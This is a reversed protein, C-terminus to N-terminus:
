NGIYHAYSRVRELALRMRSREAWDEADEDDDDCTCNGDEDRECDCEDEDGDGDNNPDSLLSRYQKPVSRLSVTSDPFAAFSTCSIEYLTVALLTRTVNGAGDDEWQDKNVAFGFSVGTLDQRSISDLTDTAVTNSNSLKASFKLGKPSDELTLTKSLTRALLAEQRHDRLLLVDAGPKLADAFAGPAVKETWSLGSSPSNYAIVGSISRSGDGNTTARLERSQLYFNERKKSM